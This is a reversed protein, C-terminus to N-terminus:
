AEDDGDDRSEAAGRAWHRLAAIWEAGAPPPDPRPLDLLAVRQKKGGRSCVAAIQEDDTLAIGVVEVEVGFM